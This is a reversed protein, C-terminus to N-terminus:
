RLEFRIRTDGVWATLAVQEGARLTRDAPLFQVAQGWAFQGSGPRTSIREVADLELEFWLAVAHLTGPACAEVDFDLGQPRDDHLLPPNALDFRAVEFDGSLDRHPTTGLDIDLYDDPVRFRDFASLDFGCLRGLPNVVRLRPIEVLRAHVTAAAPIVRAGARLLHTLAHRVSPLVGEGLLGVDVIESVLVDAPRTLPPQGATLATSKCALVEICEALGNAAVVERAAAAVPAAMECALVRGAGARAAMMALLGSGTGIDLVTDGAEVAREIARRYAENRSEDALMRFHWPPLLRALTSRRTRELDDDDPRLASARELVEIAETDRGAERLVIGLNVLADVQEPDLEVARRYANAADNLLGQRDLAVGLGFCAPASDADLTLVQRFCAAAEAWHEVGVLSEGLLLYLDAQGPELRLAERLLEVAEADRGQARRLTALNAAADASAPALKRAREFADEAAGLDGAQQLASGLGNWAAPWEPALTAAARYADVAQEADGLQLLAFGLNLHLAPNEAGADLARRMLTVAARPRDRGLELFGLLALAEPDHPREALVARYLREAADDDGERQHQRARELRADRTDSM